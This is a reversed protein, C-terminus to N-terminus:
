PKELVYETCIYKIKRGIRDNFGLIAKNGPKHYGTIHSCGRKQGEEVLRKWLALYYGRKRYRKSVFGMNVVISNDSKVGFSLVAVIQKNRNRIYFAEEEGCAPVDNPEINGAERLSTYADIIYPLVPTGNIAEVYEINM